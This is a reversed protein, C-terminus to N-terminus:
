NSTQYYVISSENITCYYQAADIMRQYVRPMLEVSHQHFYVETSTESFNVGLQAETASTEGPKAQVSRPRSIGVVQFADEVFSNALQNYQAAEQIRSLNLIQPYPSVQGGLDKLLERDM